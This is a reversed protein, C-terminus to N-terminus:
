KEKITLVHSNTRQDNAREGKRPQDRVYGRWVMEKNM